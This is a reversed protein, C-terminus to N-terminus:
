NFSAFDLLCLTQCYLRELRKWESEQVQKVRELKERVDEGGQSLLEDVHYKLFVRLCAQALDFRTRSEFCWAMASLFKSWEGPELSQIELDLQSVSSQEM